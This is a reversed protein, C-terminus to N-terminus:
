TGAESPRQRTTVHGRRDRILVGSVPKLPGMGVGPLGARGPRSIRVKIVGVFVKEGLLTVNVPEPHVHIKPAVM